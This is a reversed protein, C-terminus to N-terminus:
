ESVVNHILLAVRRKLSNLTLEAILASLSTISQFTCCLDYHTYFTCITEDSLHM